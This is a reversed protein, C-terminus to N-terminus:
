FQSRHGAQMARIAMDLRVCGYGLRECRRPFTLEPHEASVELLKRLNRSTLEPYISLLRAAVGSVLAAAISTGSVTLLDEKGLGPVMIRSGPGVVSLASGGNSGRGSEDMLQKDEEDIAGVCILSGYKEGYAGPYRSSAVGDNHSITVIPVNHTDAYAVSEELFATPRGGASLNIVTRISDECARDVIDRIAWAWHNEQGNREHAVAKVIYLLAGPCVGGPFHGSAQGAIMAAIASGHGTDDQPPQGPFFYNKGLMIEANQFVQHRPILHSTTNDLGIGTDIVAVRVCSSSVTERCNLGIRRLHWDSPRIM